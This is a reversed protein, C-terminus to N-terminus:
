RRRLLALAGVVLLSLAAPEPVIEFHSTGSALDNASLDFSILASMSDVTESIPTWDQNTSDDASLWPDANIAQIGEHFTTGSPGNVPDGAWGNYQALYAGGNPGAGVLQAGTGDQDSITMAASATGTPNTIPAFTLLESAIHFHTASQGSQVAFNLNVEPDERIMVDFQSLTGLITGDEYEFNMSDSLSWTWTQTAPDYDGWESMIPITVSIPGADATIEFVVDPLDAQVNAAFALTCLLALGSMGIRTALRTSM